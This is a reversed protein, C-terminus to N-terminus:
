YHNLQKVSKTVTVPQRGPVGVTLTALLSHIDPRKHLEEYMFYQLIDLTLPDGPYLVKGMKKGTFRFLRHTETRREQVEDDFVAEPLLASPFSLDIWYNEAPDKARDDNMVVIKLRYQHRDTSEQELEYEMSATLRPGSSRTGWGISFKGSALRDRLDALVDDSSEFEVPALLLQGRLGERKLGKQIYVAVPIGKGQTQVLFSAIALEQEVWVSARIHEGGPTTVKGRHHMVAIFGACDNLAALIHRSVGDLSAQNEAFYGKASTHEEILKEIAKGLRKEEDTYQGCSIFVVQRDDEADTRQNGIM